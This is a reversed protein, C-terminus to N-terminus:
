LLSPKTEVKAQFIFAGNSYHINNENTLIPRNFFHLSSMAEWFQDVSRLGTLMIKGSQFLVIPVPHWKRILSAPFLDIFLQIFLTLM